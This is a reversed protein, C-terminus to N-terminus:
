LLLKPHQYTNKLLEVFKGFRVDFCRDLCCLIEKLANLGYRFLSFQKRKHAKIKIPNKENEYLGSLYAWCFSISLLTILNEIREIHTLNMEELNFGKSKLARFLTEIQWRKGYDKLIEMSKSNDMSLIILYETELRMITVYMKLGWVTRKGSLQIYEGIALARGFNKAPASGGHRKEIHTSETTRIRIKINNDHLYSFWKQGIFERDALISQVKNFTLIKKFRNMLEIREDTNSNGKKDLLMWMIPIAVGEYIVAVYLININRGALLWNTRDMVLEIKEVPLRDYIFQAAIDASLNVEAFFRQVRRYKSNNTARGPLYVSLKTLNVTTGAIVGIVM